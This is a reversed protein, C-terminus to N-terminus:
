TYTRVYICIFTQVYMYEHIYRYIKLYIYTCIQHARIYIYICVFIYINAFIYTFLYYRTSKRQHPTHRQFFIGFVFFSYYWTNACGTAWIWFSLNRPVFEFWDMIEIQIQVAVYRRIQTERDPPNQPHLLPFHHVPFPSVITYSPNM